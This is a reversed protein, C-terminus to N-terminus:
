DRSGVQGFWDAVNREASPEIRARMSQRMIELAADGHAPCVSIVADRPVWLGYDRMHADAATVFVCMETAIGTLILRDVGLKPLLVPLNTAYFGSFQPKIVFYDSPRPLIPAIERRDRIRAILRSRESHWEGFNDNVYIVPAEARDAADRLACLREIASGLQRRAAEAGGFDFDNIMDIILLACQNRPQDRMPAEPTKENSASAM